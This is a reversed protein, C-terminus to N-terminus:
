RGHVESQASAAVVDQSVHDQRGGLACGSRHRLTRRHRRGPVHTIRDTEPPGAPRKQFTRRQPNRHREATHPIKEM